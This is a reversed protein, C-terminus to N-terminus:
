YRTLSLCRSHIACVQTDDMGAAEEESSARLRFIPIMDFTKALLATMVFTYGVAACIYAFQIYLQKWNRNLWGGSAATNM